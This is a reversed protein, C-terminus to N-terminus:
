IPGHNIKSLDEKVNMIKFQIDSAGSAELRTKHMVIYKKANALIDFCYIGGSRSIKEDETWIKWIFGPEKNISEARKRAKDAILSSNSEFDMWILVAM